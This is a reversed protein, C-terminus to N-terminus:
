NVIQCCNIARKALIVSLDERGTIKLRLNAWIEYVKNAIWGIVPIKTLAYIWGMGLIEYVKRFAEINKVVTGDALVAHIRTMATEYDIGANEEPSYNDDAIDVFVVKGRGADKKRLFNVERLCLPCEGDYLLKIEYAPFETNPATTITTQNQYNSM